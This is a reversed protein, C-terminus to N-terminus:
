LGGGVLSRGVTVIGFTVLVALYSLGTAAMVGSYSPERLSFWVAAILLGGFIVLAIWVWTLASGTLTPSGSALIVGTEVILGTAAIGDLTFLPQRPLTPDVLFWHGLMMESTVGGLLVTGSLLLAVALLAPEFGAGLLVLASAVFLGPAANRRTALMGGVGALAAGIWAPVGGGALAAFAALATTVAAAMWVYGPGVVRRGAVLATGAATGAGWM